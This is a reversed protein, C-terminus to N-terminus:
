PCTLASDLPLVRLAGQQQESTGSVPLHGLGGPLSWLLM